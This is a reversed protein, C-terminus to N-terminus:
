AGDISWLGGVFVTGGKGLGLILCSVAPILLFGFIAGGMGIGVCVGVGGIGVGIGLATHGNGSGRVWDCTFLVVVADHALM